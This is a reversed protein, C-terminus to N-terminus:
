ISGPRTSTVRAPSMSSSWTWRSATSPFSTGARWSGSSTGSPSRRACASTARLWMSGGSRDIMDEILSDLKSLDERVEEAARELWGFTPDEESSMVLAEVWAWDDIGLDEHTADPAVRRVAEGLEEPRTRLWDILATHASNPSPM